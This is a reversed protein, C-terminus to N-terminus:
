SVELMSEELESLLPTCRYVAPKAPEILECTLSKPISAYINLAPTDHDLTVEDYDYGDGKKYPKPFIKALALFQYKAIDGGYAHSWYISPKKIEAEPSKDLADALKRLESSVENAKPM